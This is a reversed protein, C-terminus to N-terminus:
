KRRRYALLGVCGFGLFALTGPEPVQTLSASIVYDGTGTGPNVVFGDEFSTGSLFPAVAITYDGAALALDFIGSYLGNGGDDDEAILNGASDFIAMETDVTTGVFGSPDQDTEVSFLGAENLTITYLDFLSELAFEGNSNASDDVNLSGLSFSGNSDSVALREEFIMQVNSSQSDAGAGDDFTDIFEVEWDNTGPDIGGVFDGGLEDSFDYDFTSFAAGPGPNAWIDSPLQLSGDDQRIVIDAESGWTPALVSTLTGTFRIHTANFGGTFSIGTLVTNDAAGPDDGHDFPGAGLSVTESNNVGGGSANSDALVPSTALAAAIVFMPLYFRIRM